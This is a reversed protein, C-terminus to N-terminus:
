LPSHKNIRLYKAMLLPHSLMANQTHCTVERPRPWISQEPSSYDGMVCQAQTIPFNEKVIDPVTWKLTFQTKLALSNVFMLTTLSFLSLKEFTLM